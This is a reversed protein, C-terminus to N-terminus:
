KIPGDQLLDHPRKSKSKLVPQDAAGAMNVGLCGFLKKWFKAIRESKRSTNISCLLIKGQGKTWEVLAAGSPKQLKEYLVLAGCKRNEPAHFLSWDIDCARLLVTSDTVFPGDLGCLMMHSKQNQEVLYLEKLSFSATRAKEAGHVFSSIQRDTLIVPKPLITNLLNLDVEKDNLMILVTSGASLASKVVMKKLATSLGTHADIIVFKAASDETM